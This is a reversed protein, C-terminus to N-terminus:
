LVSPREKWVGRARERGLWAIAALVLVLAPLTVLNLLDWGAQFLTAGASLSAFAQIGFITFDNVAQTKFREAPTYSHTLLLTSGVFLFNWGLGLLVLAGWFHALASGTVALSVCVLLFIVGAAMVRLPGLRELIVGTFLSPLFMAVIHSQIVLTTQDLSYGSGKHLHLPTATMIFSMVGYAAAASLAAVLYTPQRVIQRLPREAGAAVAEEPAVDRLFALLVAVLGYLLALSVFSGVYLGAPLWDRTRRAVEPGLFGALIGGLLVFSVARGAHAPQVSEAAAFRYQQVFAGNAGIALTAACFLGFSGRAVAYAALAAALGAWLAAGIFGRRRGFRRMLLAAPITSAAVGVVAISVPLTAWAPSPALEFGIIGGLLVVMAIGSTGLAQSM